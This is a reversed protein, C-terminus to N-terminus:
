HHYHIETNINIKCPNNNNENQQEDGAADFFLNTSNDSHNDAQEDGLPPSANSTPSTEVGNSDPQEQPADDRNSNESPLTKGNAVPTSPFDDIIVEDKPAPQDLEDLYIQEFTGAPENHRNTPVPRQLDFSHTRYARRLQYLIVCLIIIVLIIMVLIVYAWSFGGRSGSGTPAPTTSPRPAARIPETTREPDKAETLSVTTTQSATSGNGASKSSNDVVGYVDNEVESEDDQTGNRSTNSQPSPTTLPSLPSLTPLSTSNAENGGADLVDPTEYHGTYSPETGPEATQDQGRSLSLVALVLVCVHSWCKFM